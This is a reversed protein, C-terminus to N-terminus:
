APLTRWWWVGRDDRERSVQGAKLLHNLHAVAEGTAMGLVAPGIARSFLTGFIDVARRPEALAAQLRTLAGRHSDILADIRAHLGIFPSNHAPLVLVDDAVRAKIAALSELWDGLPDADPETPYVSVNSSIRPLIQDGSILLKLEPCYLCAHEPSHGKGVVIRWRQTGITLSEGDVIRRFSAPLPHIMEGFAGFKEQYREIARDDWGAGVYFDIGDAPATSGTDSAMLRCTLYELRTMWLRTKFRQAIWGALGCHDPHMHTVLVRSVPSRSLSAAFAAQWAGITQPSNLGTDVITWGGADELAWVNIWPLSAFLPMRLWLVGRAVSITSGDGTQPEQALPYRLEPPATPQMSSTSNM